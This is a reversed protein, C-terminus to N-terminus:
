WLKNTVIRLGMGFYASPRPNGWLGTGGTMDLQVKDNFIHRFGTQFAGGTDGGYPDNRFIEFIWNFGGHVRFQTGIGWTGVTSDGSTLGINAHILVGDNDFLSETFAAYVFERWEKARFSQLGWPPTGGAIMAFGPTGNPKAEFFLYKAQMLPGQASFIRAQDRDLPIGDVFGLTLELRDTPGLALLNLNTFVSKDRRVSTEVQALHEGVVRADDTVFPRVALAPRVGLLTTLALCAAILALPVSSNKMM